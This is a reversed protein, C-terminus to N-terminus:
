CSLPSPPRASSTGPGRDWSPCCSATAPRARLFMYNADTVADFLGVATAYALTILFVRRVSGPRPQRRLGVVLYIAATVIGVHSVVYVFFQLEPFRQTLDPTLVGQLSGVLGWFYTLEVLLPQWPLWCAFAAVVLAIDCLSLPLAAQVTFTGEAIPRVISTVSAIGLVVALVRAATFTWEGPRLRAALTLTFCVLAGIAVCIWYAPSM